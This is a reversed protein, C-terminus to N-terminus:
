FFFPNTMRERGVTTKPGHGPYVVVDDGLPFIKTRVSEILQEYSGGPFDTRGISGAFLTDGVFVINYDPLFFSVHGPTHGPTELVNMSIKGCRVIDGERLEGDVQGKLGTIKGMLLAGLGVMRDKLLPKDAPHIYILGGCMDKLTWADLVHDFHGHTLLIAELKLGKATITRAIRKAEGGPDIVVCSKSTEDGLLYCNTQLMGVVFSELIM